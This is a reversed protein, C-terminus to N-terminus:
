EWGVLNNLGAFLNEEKIKGVAEEVNFVAFLYPLVNFNGGETAEANAHVVLLFGIVM